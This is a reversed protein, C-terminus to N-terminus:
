QSIYYKKGNIIKIGKYSTNVKLGLMNYTETSKTKKFSLVKQIGNTSPFQTTDLYNLRQIIWNKIYEIEKKYAECIECTDNTIVYVGHKIGLLFSEASKRQNDFM